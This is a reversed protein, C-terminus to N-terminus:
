HLFNEAVFCQKEVYHVGNVIYKQWQSQQQSWLFRCWCLHSVTTIVAASICYNNNSEMLMWQCEIFTLSHLRKQMSSNLQMGKFVYKWALRWKALSDKQKWTDCLLLIYHLIPPFTWVRSDYRWCRDRINHVLM